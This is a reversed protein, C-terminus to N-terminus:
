NPLANPVAREPDRPIASALALASGAYLLTDAVYNLADNVGAPSGNRALILIPLYLFLTLATMLAGVSAAAIRSQKNLALGIGAALLIAGTLIGM